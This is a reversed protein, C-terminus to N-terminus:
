DYCKGTLRDVLVYKYHSDHFVTDDDFHSAVENMLKVNRRANCRFFYKYNTPAEIEIDKGVQRAEWRRLFM